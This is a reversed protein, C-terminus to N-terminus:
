VGNTSSCTNSESFLVLDYQILWENHFWVQVTNNKYLLLAPVCTDKMQSDYKVPQVTQKMGYNWYQHQPAESLYHPFSQWVRDIKSHDEMRM